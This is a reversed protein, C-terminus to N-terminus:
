GRPRSRRTDWTLWAVVVLVPPLAVWVMQAGQPPRASLGLFHLGTGWLNLSVWYVAVAGVARRVARLREALAPISLFAVVALSVLFWATRSM